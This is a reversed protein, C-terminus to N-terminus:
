HERTTAPLEERSRSQSSARVGDGPEVSLPRNGLRPGFAIAPNALDEHGPGQVSLRQAIAGRLQVEARRSAKWRMRCRNSVNFAAWAPTSVSEIPM